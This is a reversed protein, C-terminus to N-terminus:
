PQVKTVIGYIKSAFGNVHGRNNAILYRGGIIKKILHLYIRGKVKALVIDGKKVTFHKIPHITVEDGSNIRGTMSNGRPRGVVTRGKELTEAAKLLNM